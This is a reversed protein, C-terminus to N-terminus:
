TTGVFVIPIEGDTEETTTEEVEEKKVTMPIETVFKANPKESTTSTAMTENAVTDNNETVNRLLFM